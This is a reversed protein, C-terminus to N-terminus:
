RTPAASRALLRVIKYERHFNDYDALAADSQFTADLLDHFRHNESFARRLTGRTLPQVPGAPSTSFHYTVIQQPSGKTRSIYSERAYLTLAGAALVRYERGDVSRVDWGDCDRFGYIERKQYRSRQGEHEVDIYPRNLFTHRDIKHTATRCDIAHTLTGAAYNGATLYIGSSTSDATGSAQAHALGPALAVLAAACVAAGVGSVLRLARARAPAFSGAAAGVDPAPPPAWEAAEWAAAALVPTVDIANTPHEVTNCSVVRAPGAAVLTQYADGAFIAHVGICVPAPLGARRLHGVTAIMTRATSIIDDVLVPTHDRWRAVDPVSVTVERDGSRVKELVVSPAGALGAVARVWQASEEDPGVLLPMRVHEAIWRAVAPAAHAVACPIPYLERLERIRHLHPDVTALWDFVGALLRAVEWATVAEGDHFRRDQRMYALYPAVLGVSRAGMDRAAGAAFVLPLLKGDPRDLPCFLAVERGAVACLVRVLSEGDPFRRVDVTGVDAGLHEALAGAAAEDGRFALLM